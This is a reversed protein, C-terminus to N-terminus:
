KKTGNAKPQSDKFRVAREGPSRSLRSPCEKAMLQPSGCTFCSSRQQAGNDIECLMNKIGSTLDSVNSCLSSMENSVKSMQRAVETLAPTSTGSQLFENRPILGSDTRHISSYPNINQKTDCTSLLYGESEDEEEDSCSYTDYDDYSKCTYADVPPDSKTAKSSPRRSKSTKNICQFWEMKDMAEKFSKPQQTCAHQGAELDLCGMCFRIIAHRRIWAEPLDKYAKAALTLIRDAWDSLTEGEDQCENQFRAQLTEPLEERKFRKGFESMLHKYSLDANMNCLLVYFDAAKGKLGWILMDTKKDDTWGAATAYSEFKQKFLTWNTKGDFVLNKPLVPPKSPEAAKRITPKQRQVPFQNPQYQATPQHQAM